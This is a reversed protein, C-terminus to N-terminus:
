VDRIIRTCVIVAYAFMARLYTAFQLIVAVLSQLMFTSITFSMLVFNNSPSSKLIKRLSVPPMFGQTFLLCTIAAKQFQNSM